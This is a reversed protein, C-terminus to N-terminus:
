FIVQKYGKGATLATYDSNKECFKILQERDSIMETLFGVKRLKQGLGFLMSDTVFKFNDISNFSTGEPANKEM